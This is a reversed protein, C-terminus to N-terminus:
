KSSSSLAVLALGAAIAIGMGGGGGSSPAPTSPTSPMQPMPSGGPPLQPPPMPGIDGGKPMTANTVLPPGSPANPIQQVAPPGSPGVVNVGPVVNSPPVGPAPAPTVPAVNQAVWKALVQWTLEDLDGYLHSGNHINTGLTDDAWAQFAGCVKKSADDWNGNVNSATFSGAPSGYTAGAGRDCWEALETQAQALESSTWVQPAFFPNQAPNYNAPSTPVSPAPTPAPAIPAPAPAAQLALYQKSMYGSVANTRGPSGDVNLGAPSSVQAWGMPADSDAPAADWMIVSVADGKTNGGLVTGSSSPKARVNLKSATITATQGATLMPMIPGSPTPSAPLAIPAPHAASLANRMAAHSAPGVVGDATLGQARQFAKTAFDANGGFQGDEALPAGNSGKFGLSNLEHQWTVVDAGSSGVKLTKSAQQQAGVEAAAGSLVDSMASGAEHAYGAADRIVLARQAGSLRAFAPLQRLHTKHLRARGMSPGQVPKSARSSFRAMSKNLSRNGVARLAALNVSRLAPLRVTGDPLAGANPGGVERAAATLSGIAKQASAAPVGLRQALADPSLARLEPRAMVQDAITKAAIDQLRKGQALGVAADFAVKAAEGGPLNRRASELVANEISGGSSAAAIARVGTEFGAKAYPGGPIANKAAEIVADTLPAGNVLADAAGVAAAVGTGFGPYASMSASAQKAISLGERAGDLLAQTIPAGGAFSTATKKIIDSADYTKGIGDLASSFKQVGPIQRAVMAAWRAPDTYQDVQKAYSSIGPIYSGLTAAAHLPNTALSAFQTALKFPASKTLEVGKQVVARAAREAKKAADRAMNAAKNAADKVAQPTVQQVVKAVPAAVSKVADGIDGFFDGADDHEYMAGTDDALWGATDDTGQMGQADDWGSRLVGSDDWAMGSVEYTNADM